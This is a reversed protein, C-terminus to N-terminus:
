QMCCMYAGKFSKQSVASTSPPNHSAHVGPGRSAQFITLYAVAFLAHIIVAFIHELKGVM